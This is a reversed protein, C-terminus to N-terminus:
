AGKRIEVVKRRLRKDLEEVSKQRREMIPKRYHELTFATSTHGMISSRDAEDGEFLSAFTTRCMRFTLDPIGGARGRDQVRRVEESCTSCHPGGDASPFVLRNGHSALWEELEARLSDPLAALRVKNRKPLKAKGHLITEDIRLGAPTIDDRTLAIVEGPRAGTLIMVRWMLYDAGETGDWLAQVEAETLSRTEAAPLGAPVEVKRAPNKPIYDNDAAEELMSHLRVRAAEVMSHGLGADAMKMLHLQVTAKTIDKLAVNGLQPEIHNKWLSAAVTPTNGTWRRSRIPLYVREWFQALTMSGDAKPGGQSLELMMADCKVQAEGKTHAAKTWTAAKHRFDEKGDANTFYERYRAKWLKGCAHVTPRQYKQRPPMVWM